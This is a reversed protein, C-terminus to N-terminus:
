VRRADIGEEEGVRAGLGGLGRHLQRAVRGAAGVHDDHLAAKVAAGIERHRHRGRLDAHAGAVLRQGGADERRRERARERPADVFGVATARASASRRSAARLRLGRGALGRREHHLRHEALAAVQGRRRREHAAHGLDARLVADQEDGVLHLGAEGRVPRMNATSCEPTSGSMMTIAFPMADPKGIAAIPARASSM